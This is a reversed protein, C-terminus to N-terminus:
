KLIQKWLEFFQLMEVRSHGHFYSSIILFLLFFTEAFVMLVIWATPQADDKAQLCLGLWPKVNDRVAQDTKAQCPLHPKVLIGVSVLKLTETESEQLLIHVLWRGLLSFFYPDLRNLNESKWTVTTM